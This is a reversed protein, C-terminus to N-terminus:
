VRQNAIKWRYFKQLLILMHMFNDKLIHLSDIVNWFIKRGEFVRLIEHFVESIPQFIFFFTMKTCNLCPDHYGLNIEQLLSHLAAWSSWNSIDYARTFAFSLLNSAKYALWDSKSYSEYSVLCHLTAYSKSPNFKLFLVSIAKSARSVSFRNSGDFKRDTGNKVRLVRPFHFM